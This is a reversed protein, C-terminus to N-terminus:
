EVIEIQHTLFSLSLTTSQINEQSKDSEIPWKEAKEPERKFENKEVLHTFTPM